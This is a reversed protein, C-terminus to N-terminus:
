GSQARSDRKREARQSIFQAGGIGRRMRRTAAHRDMRAGRSNLLIPGRARAGVARDTGGVSVDRDAGRCFRVNMM